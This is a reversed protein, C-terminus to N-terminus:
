INLSLKSFACLQFICWYVRVFWPSPTYIQLILPLVTLLTSFNWLIDMLLTKQYNSYELREGEGHLNNQVILFHVVPWRMNQAALQLPTEGEYNKPNKDNINKCILRCIELYGKRAAIHLLTQGEHSLPNEETNFYLILM